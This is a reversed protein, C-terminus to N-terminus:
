QLFHSDLQSSELGHVSVFEGGVIIVIVILDRMWCLADNSEEDDVYRTMCVGNMKMGVIRSFGQTLM